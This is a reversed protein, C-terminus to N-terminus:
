AGGKEDQATSCLIDDTSPEQWGDPSPCQVRMRVRAGPPLSSCLAHAVTRAEDVNVLFRVGDPADRWGTAGSARYRDLRAGAEDRFDVSCQSYGASDFMAWWRLYPPASGRVVRFAPAGLLYAVLALSVLLRKM